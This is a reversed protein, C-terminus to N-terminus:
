GVEADVAVVEAVFFGYLSPILLSMGKGDSKVVDLSFM